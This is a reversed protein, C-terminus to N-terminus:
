DTTMLVAVFEAGDFLYDHTHPADQSRAEPSRVRVWVPAGWAIATRLVHCIGKPDGQPLIAGPTGDRPDAPSLRDHLGGYPWTPALAPMAWRTKVGRCCPTRRSTV